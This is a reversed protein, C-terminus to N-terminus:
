GALAKLHQRSDLLGQWPDTGPPKDRVSLVTFQDGSALKALQSWPIPVSVGAAPRARTSWPAVATAGRSNRMWDVFILGKRAAKSAKAIFHGPLAAQMHEAISRAFDSVEDWSKRRVIPVTVHLGKGGSTKLWSEMGLEDLLAHVGGAAERVQAWTVGPGPDLDFIIRDPREVNDARSGWPHIEMTGWQVLTVLGEVDHIVVHPHKKGDSQTIAVTDVSEPRKGTWHKQYFCEDASGSPCRVLSLPRGAVHPLMVEAVRAFHEALELKTIGAEPYVVRDPNTITVGAVEAAEASATGANKGQKIMRPQERQITEPEKDERLGQFVPHRLLGSPTWEAFAVEAVLLPKLWQIAGVIGAPREDLPSTKRKLPELRTRIEKLADDNFGSGVRGAYRLAGSDMVALLLAGFGIRSGKPPTFGVVVFEQRNGCKVKVWSRHRGSAYPAEVRKGILGELGFRCAATLLASGSGEVLQSLHVDDGARFRSTRLLQELLGRRERLPLERLDRGDLALLDFVFCSRHRPPTTDFSEQLLGFRSIGAEDLVVAEGDLIASSAKVRTMAAAIEPFRDTWDHGNRTLLSASGNAVHAQLRYGDYKVEFIWDDGSPVTDILTALQPAIFGPTSRPMDALTPVDTRKPTATRTPSDTRKILLWQPKADRSNGTTKGTRVLVWGGQLVQGKLHFSLKGAKLGERPDEDSSWTGQDFIDVTGAGYQGKPIRGEFTAYALPHDETEVALRRVGPKTSILKPVAWSKLVGDLELRLDHHENSAFHHQVVFTNGTASRAKAGRPESTVTFTRKRRYEDLAM